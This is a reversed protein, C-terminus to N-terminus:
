KHTILIFFTVTDKTHMSENLPDHSFFSQSRTLLTSLFRLASRLWSPEYHLTIVLIHM